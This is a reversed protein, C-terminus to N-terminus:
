HASPNMVRGMFLIAGTPVDRILFIFPRNVKFIRTEPGGGTEGIVATAAAATTGKEDVDINAQHITKKVYLPPEGSKAPDVIGTFDALLPDFALPMGAAALAKALDARTQISFRPLAIKYAFGAESGRFMPADAIKEVIGVLRRSTMSREFAAISDPLIVTMALKEGIYPIEAGRWGSGSAYRVWRLDRPGVMTPVKIRTGDALRFAAKVTEGPSFARAWAAKLYIANVLAFRTLETVDKEALLRPIRGSTKAKVWANVTKRAGAPDARFDVLRVGAAFRQALADLYAPEFPYGQQLFASNVVRLTVKRKTGEEDKYTATRQRLAQELSNMWAANGTSAADHMVADMQTATEGRAGPRAMALAIMVSAPSFVLNQGKKTMRGYLDVAFANVAGAAAKADAPTTAARKATSALYITGDPGPTPVVVAVPTPTPAAPPAVTPPPPTVPVATSPATPAATAPPLATAPATASAPSSASPSGCAAVLIISLLLTPIRRKPSM